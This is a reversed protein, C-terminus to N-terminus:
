PEPMNLMSKSYLIKYIDQSPVGDIMGNTINIKTGDWFGKKGRKTVYAYGTNKRGEEDSKVIICVNGSGSLDYTGDPLSIKDVISYNGLDKLRNINDDMFDPHAPYEGALLFDRGQENLLREELRRNSEQVHRIKSYSRNM